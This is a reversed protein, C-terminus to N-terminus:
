FGNKQEANLAPINQLGLNITEQSHSLEEHILTNRNLQPVLNARIVPLGPFDSLKKGYAALKESFCHLVAAEKREDNEIHRMDECLAEFNINYLRQINAPSCYVLITVFLDRLQVPSQFTKAENICAEYEGDDELLGHAIAAEKFTEYVIGNHTRLAEFSVPGRVTTLLIRLYFREGEGPSVTYMRAIVDKGRRERRKWGRDKAQWVFHVPVEHYKLTRAFDNNQCLVFFAELQTAKRVEIVEAANAAEHFYVHQQDPLHVPLRTITHSCGFLPLEFIRWIAEHASVYRANVFEKIEDNSVEAVAADHGKYVYKYLYKVSKVSCCVEVNIHCCYKKILYPNYPVVFRNDVQVDGATTRKTVTRGNDRRKYIPFGDPSEVTQPTFDKPFKKTCHGLYHQTCDWTHLKVMMWAPAEPM